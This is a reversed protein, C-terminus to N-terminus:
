ILGRLLIFITPIQKNDYMGNVYVTILRTGVKKGGFCQTHTVTVLALMNKEEQQETATM